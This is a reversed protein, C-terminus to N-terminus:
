NPFGQKNGRHSTLCLVCACMCVCWMKLTEVALDGSKLGAVILQLGNFAPINATMLNQRNPGLCVKYIYSNASKILLKTTCATHYIAM